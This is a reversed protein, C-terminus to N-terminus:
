DLRVIRVLLLIGRRLLVLRPLLVLVLRHWILLRRAMLVFPIRGMQRGNIRLRIVRLKMLPIRSFEIMLARHRTVIRQQTFMLVMVLVRRPLPVILRIISTRFMKTLPGTRFMRRSIARPGIVGLMVRMLRKKKRLLMKISRPVSLSAMLVVSPIVLGM